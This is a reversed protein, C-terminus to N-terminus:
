INELFNLKRTIAIDTNVIFKKTLKLIPLKYYQGNWIALNSNIIDLTSQIPNSMFVKSLLKAEKLKLLSGVVHNLVDSSLINCRDIEFFLNEFIIM